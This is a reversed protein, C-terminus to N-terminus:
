YYSQPVYSCTNIHTLGGLLGHSTPRLNSGREIRFQLMDGKCTIWMEVGLQLPECNPVEVKWVDSGYKKVTINHSLRTTQSTPLIEGNAIAACGHLDVQIDTCQAIEEGLLVAMEDDYTATHIGISSMRNGRTPDPMTTFLANVSLCADSILNFYRGPAGHVEYCIAENSDDNISVSFQPDAIITDNVIAVGVASAVCVCVCVSIM